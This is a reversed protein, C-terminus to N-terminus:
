TPERDAKEVVKVESKRLCVWPCRLSRSLSSGKRSVPFLGSASAQHLGSREDRRGAAHSLGALAQRQGTRGLLSVDPAGHPPGGEDQAGAQEQQHGEPVRDRPSDTPGSPLPHPDPTLAGM